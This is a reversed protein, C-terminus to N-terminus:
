QYCVQRGHVLLPLSSESIKSHFAVHRKRYTVALFGAKPLTQRTGQSPFNHPGRSHLCWRSLPHPPCAGSDSHPADTLKPSLLLYSTLRLSIFLCSFSWSSSGKVAQFCWCACLLNIHAAPFHVILWAIYTVYYYIRTSVTNITGPFYIM